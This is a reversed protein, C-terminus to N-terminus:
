KGRRTKKKNNVANVKEALEEYGQENGILTGVNVNTIEVASKELGLGVSNSEIEKMSEMGSIAKNINNNITDPLKRIPIQEILANSDTGFSNLVNGVGIGHGNSRAYEGKPEIMGPKHRLGELKKIYAGLRAELDDIMKTAAANTLGIIDNFATGYEKSLNNLGVGLKQIDEFDGDEVIKLLADSSLNLLKNRLSDDEVTNVFKFWTDAGYTNILIEIDSQSLDELGGLYEVAEKLSMGSLADKLSIDYEKKTLENNENDVVGEVGVDPIGTSFGGILSVREVDSLMGKTKELIDGYKKWDTIKKQLEASGALAAQKLAMEYRYALKEADSIETNVSDIGKELAMWGNFVDESLNLGFDSAQNGGTLISENIKSFADEWNVGYADQMYKAMIGMGSSMNTASETTLGSQLIGPVASQLGKLATKESVEGYKNLEKATYGLIEASYSLEEAGHSWDYAAKELSKLWGTSAFNIGKALGLKFSSLGKEINSAFEAGGSFVEKIEDAADKNNADTKNITSATKIDSLNYRTINSGIAAYGRAIDAQTKNYEKGLNIAAEIAKNLAEIVAFYGGLAASFKLISNVLKKNGLVGKLLRTGTLWNKGPMEKGLADKLLEKFNSKKDKVTDKEFDYGAFANQHFKEAEKKLEPAYKSMHKLKPDTTYEKIAKDYAEMTEKYNRWFADKKDTGPDANNKISTDKKLKKGIGSERDSSSSNETNNSTGLINKLSRNYKEAADSASNFQKAYQEIAKANQELISNLLQQKSIIKEILKDYGDEEGSVYLKDEAM